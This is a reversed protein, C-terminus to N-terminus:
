DRRDIEFEAHWTFLGIRTVKVNRMSGYKDSAHIRKIARAVKWRPGVMSMTLNM